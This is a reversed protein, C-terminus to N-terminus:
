SIKSRIRSLTERSVGIYSAIDRIPVRQVIEPQNLLLHQYKELATEFSMMDLRGALRICEKETLIQGLEQWKSDKEYLKQMNEYSISLISTPEIAQIFEKSPIRKTFSEFSSAVSDEMCFCTCIETGDKLYFIRLLGSGTFAIQSCVKGAEAIYEDRKYVKFNLFPLCHEFAIDDMDVMGQVYAKFQSTIETINTM